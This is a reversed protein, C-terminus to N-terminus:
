VPEGVELHLVDSMRSALDMIERIGSAEMSARKAAPKM